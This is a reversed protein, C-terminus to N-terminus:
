GVKTSEAPPTTRWHESQCEGEGADGAASGQML